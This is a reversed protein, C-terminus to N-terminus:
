SGKFPLWKKIKSANISYKKTGGTGLLFAWPHLSPIHSFIIKLIALFPVIVLMGAVGWIMSSAVLGIIIFFPSIKVNGGVINPTLINNETFQIIAFLIIVGIPDNPLSGTLLAFSLPVLGGLLTGFYPIFNFLASIIGLTIPYKIGVIYLGFSNLFCLTFVVMMVGGMYRPMVKAIEKLTKIAVFEQDDPTLKLIFYAFKTRYYLFLFIYVPMLGIKVITGTTTTFVKNFIDGGSEFFFSIRQKIISKIELDSIQVLNELGTISEINNLAQKKISPFDKVMYQIQSYIFLFVGSLVAIALIISVLNALIRPFHHKELFNALPYLLYSLFVGFALPFLFNRAQILGFIVLIVSLVFIPFKYPKLKNM